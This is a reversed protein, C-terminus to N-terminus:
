KDKSISSQPVTKWISVQTMCDTSDIMPLAQMLFKRQDCKMAFNLQLLTRVNWKTQGHLLREESSYTVGVTM